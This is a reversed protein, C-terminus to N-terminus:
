KRKFFALELDDEVWAPKPYRSWVNHTGRPGGQWHIRVLEMNNPCRAQAKELLEDPTAATIHHVYAFTEGGSVEQREIVMYCATFPGHQM